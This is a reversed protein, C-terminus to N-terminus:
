KQTHTHTHIHTQTHTHTKLNLLMNVRTAWKANDGLNLSFFPYLILPFLSKNITNPNLSVDVRTPWKTDDGLSLSFLSLLSLLPIFSLSLPSPPFHIFTFFCFFYFCEGEVGVQQLPLLGQGVTLWYWNSARTVCSVHCRQRLWGGRPFLSVSWISPFAFSLSVYSIFFYAGTGWRSCFTPLVIISWRFQFVLKVSWIGHFRIM